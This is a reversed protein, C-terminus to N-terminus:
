DSLIEHLIGMRPFFVMLEEAVRHDDTCHLPIAELYRTPYDCIVLM